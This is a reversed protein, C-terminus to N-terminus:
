LIYQMSIFVFLTERFVSEALEMGPSASPPAARSSRPRLAARGTLCRVPSPAGGDGVSLRVAERQAATTRCWHGSCLCSLVFAWVRSSHEGPNSEEQQLQNKSFGTTADQPPFSLHFCSPKPFSCCHREPVSSTLKEVNIVRKEERLSLSARAVGPGEDLGM